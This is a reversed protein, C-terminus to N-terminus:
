SFIPAGVLPGRNSRCHVSLEMNKYPNTGTFSL